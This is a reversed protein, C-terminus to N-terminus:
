IAHRHCEVAALSNITLHWVTCYDPMSFRNFVITHYRLHNAQMIRMEYVKGNVLGPGILLQQGVDALIAQSNPMAANFGFFFPELEAAHELVRSQCYSTAMMRIDAYVYLLVTVSPDSLDKRKLLDQECLFRAVEQCLM